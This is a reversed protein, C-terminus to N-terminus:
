SANQSKARLEEGAQRLDNMLERSNEHADIREEYTMQLNLEVASELLKQSDVLFHSDFDHIHNEPSKM